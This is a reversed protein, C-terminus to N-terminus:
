RQPRSSTPISFSLSGLLLSLEQRIDKKFANSTASTFSQAGAEQTPVTRPWASRLRLVWDGSIARLAQAERLASYMQRKLANRTVARKALRKPVVVGVRYVPLDDVAPPWHRDPSTCLEPKASESLAPMLGHLSFHESSAVHRRRLVQAFDAAARLHQVDFLWASAGKPVVHM